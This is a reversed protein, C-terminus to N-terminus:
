WGKSVGNFPLRFTAQLDRDTLKFPEVTFCHTDAPGTCADTILAYSAGNVPADFLHIVNLKRATMGSPLESYDWRMTVEIGGPVPGSFPVSLQSGSGFCTTIATPCTNAPPVDRATVEANVGIRVATGHPNTENVEAVMDNCNAPLGAALCDIGGTTFFRTGEISHGAVFDDDYERVVTSITNSSFTDLNNSTGDSNDTGGEAVIVQVTYPYTGATMPVRYYFVIAPAPQGAALQGVSCEAVTQSCITTPTAGLYTFGAAAVGKVSVFNLTSKGSNVISVPYAVPKGITVALPSSTLVTATIEGASVPTSIGLALVAALAIRFTLGSARSRSTV